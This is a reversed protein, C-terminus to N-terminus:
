DHSDWCQIGWRPFWHPFFYTRDHNNKCLCYTTCFMHRHKTQLCTEQFTEWKRNQSFNQLVAFNIVNQQELITYIYRKNRAWTDEKRHLSFCQMPKRLVRHTYKLTKEPHLSSHRDWYGKIELLCGQTHACFTLLTQPWTATVWKSSMFICTQIHTLFFWCLKSHIGM